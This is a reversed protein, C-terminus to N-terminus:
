RSARLAQLMVKALPPGVANVFAQPSLGASFSSGGSSPPPQFAAAAAAAAAAEADASPTFPGGSGGSTATPPHYVPIAAPPLAAVAAAAAAANPNPATAAAAAAAANQVFDGIAAPSLGLQAAVAATAASDFGLGAAKSTLADVQKQLEAAVSAADVGQGLMTSGLKAIADFAGTLSQLNGAGLVSSPDFSFVKGALIEDWIVKESATLKTPDTSGIQFVKAIQSDWDSLVQQVANTVGATASNLAGGLGPGTAQSGFSSNFLDIQAVQAAIAALDAAAKAAAEVFAGLAEGSLGLSAAMDEVGQQDFGLSTALQVLVAVQKQLETSVTAADVGQALMVRGFDAITDFAGTLQQINQVGLADNINLSTSGGNSLSERLGDLATTIAGRADLLSAGTNLEAGSGVMGDFIASGVGRLADAAGSGAARGAEVVRNVLRTIADTALATSDTIGNALGEGIFRGMRAFVQSPSKIEFGLKAAKQVKLAMARAAAIPKFAYREIGDALGEDAAKGMLGFKAKADKDTPATLEVPVSVKGFAWAKSGVLNDSFKNGKMSLTAEIKTAPPHDTLHQQIDKRVQLAADAVNINSLTPTVGSIAAMYAEAAAVYAESGVPIGAIYTEFLGKTLEAATAPTLVTGKALADASAAQLVGGLTTSFTRFSESIKAEGVTGGQEMAQAIQEGMGEVSIVAKDITAQLSTDGPIAFLRDWAGKADDLALEYLAVKDAAKQVVAAADVTSAFDRAGGTMKTWFNSAATAAKDIASPNFTERLNIRVIEGNVATFVNQLDIGAAQAATLGDFFNDDVINGGISNIFATVGPQGKRFAAFVDSVKIGLAEFTALTEPTIQDTISKKLDDSSTGSTFANMFDLVADKGSRLASELGGRVADAIGQMREKFVQAAQSAKGIQAGLLAAGAALAGIVPNGTVVGATLGATVASTLGSGGRAGEAKGAAFGGIAALAATAGAKLGSGLAAGITIGQDKAYQKLAAFPAVLGDKLNRGGIALGDTLGKMFGKSGQAAFQPAGVVQALGKMATVIGKAGTRVATFADQMKQRFMRGAIEAETFGSKIKGLADRAKQLSAENVNFGLALRKGGLARIQANIGALERSLSSTLQAKATGTGGFLGSLFGPASRVSAKMGTLFGTGAGTGMNRFLSFLRAALPALALAGVLILPNSWLAKLGAVLGDRLMGVLEPLNSAIGRALGEVFRFGIIVAAAAIAAVAKLFAPSSVITGIIRGIEEVLGLFASAYKKLNPGSFLDKFFTLIKQGVPYLAQGVAYAIGAITTGIGSLASVAGGKLGAFDGGFAGGIAKGLEKFGDIAPQIFPRITTALRDVFSIAASAARGIIEIGASVAPVVNKGIFIAVTALAPILKETIFTTATFLARKITDALNRFTRSAPEASRELGDATQTITEHTTSFADRVTNIADGFASFIRQGQTSIYRLLGSLADHFDGSRTWLISIAAGIAGAVILLAGMPTLLAGMVSKLLGLVEVAGKAAFILGLAIAVGRLGDRVITLAPGLGEGKIFDSLGQLGIQTASVLLKLPGSILGILSAGFDAFSEKLNAVRGSLTKALDASAGALRPDSALGTILGNVVAEASLEGAEQLRTLEQVNGGTLQDALIQRINLGPLNEALQNLEDGQLKGTSVIQGIARQIRDLSDVGGGTLAVADAIAKVRPLVQDVPTKIALFGKALDAVGVLDFPTEKAFQKVQALLQNTDDINGTLALFQKNIRELDSFRQFGSTLLAGIGVGGALLGIGGGIGRGTAAGLVGTSTRRQADQIIRQQRITSSRLEKEQRSFSSRILTERSRLESPLGQTFASNSRRLSSTLTTFTRSIASTATKAFGTVTAGLAKELRGITELVSRMIQVRQKGAVKAANVQLEGQTRASQATLKTERNMIALREQAARSFRERDKIQGQREQSRARDQTKSLLGVALGLETISQAFKAARAEGTTMGAFFDKNANTAERSAATVKKVERAAAKTANEFAQNKFSQFGLKIADGIADSIAKKMATLAADSLKFNVDFGEANDM